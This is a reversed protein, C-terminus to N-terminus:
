RHKRLCTCVGTKQSMATFPGYLSEVRAQNKPTTFLTNKTYIAELPRIPAKVLRISLPPPPPCNKNTLCNPRAGTAAENRRARDRQPELVEDLTTANV